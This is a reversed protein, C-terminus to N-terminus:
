HSTWQGWKTVFLVLAGLFGVVMAILLIAGVLKDRRSVPGDFM